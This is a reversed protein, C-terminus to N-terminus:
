ISHSLVLKLVTKIIWFIKQFSPMSVLVQLIFSDKVEEISLKTPAAGATKRKRSVIVSKFIVPLEVFIVGDIRYTLTLTIVIWIDFNETFL